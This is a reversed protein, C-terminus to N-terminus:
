PGFIHFTDDCRVDSQTSSPRFAQINDDIGQTNDDMPHRLAARHRDDRTPRSSNTWTAGSDLLM